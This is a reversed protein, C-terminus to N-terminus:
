NLCIGADIVQKLKSTSRKRIRYRVSHSSFLTIIALLIIFNVQNAMIQFNFDTLGHLAITVLGALSGTFLSLYIDPIEDLNRKVQRSIIFILSVLLILGILGGESLLELYDNHAHVPDVNDYALRHRPYVRDFTNMGTGAIPYHIFIHLTDVWFDQRAFYHQAMHDFRDSLGATGTWYVSLIILCFFLIALKWSSKRLFHFFIFFLIGLATFIIGSRSKSFVIGCAIVIPCMLWFFLTINRDSFITLIHHRWSHSRHLKLRKIRHILLGIACFFSMELYGAFHNRNIFTGTVSRLNNMPDFVVYHHGSLYETFGYISQGIGLLILVKILFELNQLKRFFRVALLYLLFLFTFHILGQFTQYPNLSITRKKGLVIKKRDPATGEFLDQEEFSPSIAIAAEAKQYIEHTHPSVIKLVGPYLPLVQILCLAISLLFIWEIGTNLFVKRFTLRLDQALWMEVLFWTWFLLSVSIAFFVKAGPTVGGYLIPVVIIIAYIGFRILTECLKHM